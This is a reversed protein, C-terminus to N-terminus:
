KWSPDDWSLRSPPLGWTPSAPPLPPRPPRAWRGPLGQQDPEVGSLHPQPLQSVAIARSRGSAALIRRRARRTGGAGPAWLRSPPPADTRPRPSDSCPLQAARTAPCAGPAARQSGARGGPWVLRKGGKRGAAGQVRSRVRRESGELRVRRQSRPAWLPICHGLYSHPRGAQPTPPTGLDGARQLPGVETLM